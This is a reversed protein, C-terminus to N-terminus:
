TRLTSNNSITGSTKKRYLLNFSIDKLTLPIELPGAAVAKSIIFIMTLALALSKLM